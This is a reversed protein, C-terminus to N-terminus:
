DSEQGSLTLRILESFRDPIQLPAFHSAGGMVILGSPQIALRIDLAHDFKIAEDQAAHVVFTPVSVSHLAALGAPKETSWLQTLEELLEDFPIQGDSLREYDGAMMSVYSAFVANDQVTPHIADLTVNGAFAFHSALRQPALQSIEYGVNAGDSWGVLHVADIQLYDLLGLYDEALLRYSYAQGDHTSRGHGRTDAVIVRFDPSLARVQRAWLDAHGLGGHILLVPTSDGTGYIAYYLSIDNVPAFGSILAPPMPGAAPIRQWIETATAPGNLWLALAVIFLRLATLLRM